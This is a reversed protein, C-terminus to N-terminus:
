LKMKHMMHGFMNCTIRTRTYGILIFAMLWPVSVLCLVSVHPFTFNHQWTSVKMSWAFWRNAFPYAYFHPSAQKPPIFYHTILVFPAIITVYYFLSILM